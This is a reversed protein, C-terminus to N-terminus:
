HASKRASLAGIRSHLFGSHGPKEINVESIAAEVSITKVCTVIASM